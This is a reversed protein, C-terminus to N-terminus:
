GSMQQYASLGERTERRNKLQVKLRLHEARASELLHQTAALMQTYFRPDIDALQAHLAASMRNATDLHGGTLAQEVGQLTRLVPQPLRETM